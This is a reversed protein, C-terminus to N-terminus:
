WWRHEELRAIAEQITQENRAFTFRIWEAERDSYFSSGPVPAVGADRALRLSFETDDEDTGYRAIMYYSGDPTVPELGVDSLGDYMLDRRTQYGASLEDFYADPLSLAAIGAQQFPTPACISTYDHIKRVETSLTEPAMAFGVRWGTVSFTKSLGTCVIAREPVGTVEVPSVYEDTYVIHEYIEDTILIVEEDEIVDAILEIEHRTFVKGTPNHPTNLILISADRAVDKLRDEDFEGETTIALPRRDGGAFAIAPIYNEYTPEFYVVGDGPDCLALIASMIAETTGCTITVETEPDYTVGKWGEYRNSVTKRLEELGWTISYQNGTDIATKAADLLAQPTGSEDPLGQSLNIADHRLAERTMARIVSERVGRTRESGVDDGFPTQITM